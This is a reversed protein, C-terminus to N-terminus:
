ANGGGLQQVMQDAFQKIATPDNGLGRLVQEYQPAEPSGSQHLQQIIQQVMAPTPNQALSMAMQRAQPNPAGQQPTGAGMAGLLGPQQAQPQQPQAMAGLIGQQM